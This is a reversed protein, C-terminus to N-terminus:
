KVFISNTYIKAGRSAVEFIQGNAIRGVQASKEKAVEIGLMNQNTTRIFLTPRTIAPFASHSIYGNDSTAM